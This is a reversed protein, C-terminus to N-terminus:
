PATVDDPEPITVVQLNLNPQSRVPESKHNIHHLPAAALPRVFPEQLMTSHGGDVDVMAFAPIGLDSEGHSM